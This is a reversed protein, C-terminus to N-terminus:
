RLLFQKEIEEPPLPKSFYYGQFFDCKMSRLFDYQENNEIGEAVVSFGLNHALNLIATLIAVAKMSHPVNDIFSKDTKLTDVPLDHIKSFSSYGTGFDDISLSCGMAKLEHLREIGEKENEMIGTETIEFKLRRPDAGTREIIAAIEKVLDPRRFQYTSLNVAVTYPSYGKALWEMNQLCVQEIARYGIEVIIGSKEAVHIFESPMVLGKSPSQWRVLSEMGAIAGAPDVIPQYYMLFEDKRVAQRLDSELRLKQVIGDHIERSFLQYSNRGRDKAYYMAADAKDMLEEADRGDDPHISIGMSASIPIPIGEAFFPDGFARSIKESITITDEYTGVDSFIIMFKDGYIRALVDDPRLLDRLRAVVQKLLADGTRTGYMENVDKFRDLGICMVAFISEKNKRRDAKITEVQLRTVFMDRNFADTLLDHTSDYIAYDILANHKKELDRNNGHMKSLDVALGGIRAEPVDAPLSTACIHVPFVSGDARIMSFEDGGHDSGNSIRSFFDGAKGRDDPAFMDGAPRGIIGGAPHGLLTNTEGTVSKIEFDGNMEFYMVPLSKLARTLRKVTEGPEEGDVTFPGPKGGRLKVSNSKKMTM